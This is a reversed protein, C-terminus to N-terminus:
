NFTLDIKITFQAGTYSKGEYEFTKNEITFSGGMHNRIIEQTMYLGIGTGKSKHKTTFYPECVKDVIEEKIGGANDKIIIFGYDDKKYADIFIFRDKEVKQEFADRANNLINILAQLLENELGYIEYNEFNTIIKIEYNKFQAQTLKFTKEFVEEIKFHSEKKDSKFFNRFDDITKSLYKATNTINDLSDNLTDDDLENFEKQIKMGTAATTIVSLPQRWQHAINGIMEGMSAMKSQQALINHQRTRELMHQHIAKKYESFKKNLIRVIYFSFLLLISTVITAIYFILIVNDKFNDNLEKEKSIFIKDFDNQYFSKGIAWQWNQIGKIYTTKTSGIKTSHNNKPIYSMFGEGSKGIYIFDKIVKENDNLFNVDTSKNEIIEKNNHYLITKDYNLVFYGNDENSSLKSIYKLIEKQVEKEFDVYYEGTGIFWDFPEFYINFGIKKYQNKMDDPKHYYWTQFGEKEKKIKDIIKRTLYEGKGDKFNYFNTGELERAVPLLICEYDISYVFFYGRNDNFRINVLADKIMKKIENKDKTNKNQEYINTAITHAEYVRNKINEKLNEITEDQTKVIFEYLDDIKNKIQIKNNKIYQTKIFMKEKELFHQKEIYLFITIILSITIIFLPPFYKIINLIHKENKYLM